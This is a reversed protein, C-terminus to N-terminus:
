SLQSARLVKVSSAQALLVDFMSVSSNRHNYRFSYEDIYAQLYKKSVHRYVGYIGRKLNSWMSEVNQVHVDGETLYTVHHKVTQHKYGIEGLKAYGPHQDTIVRAKPSVYNNIQTVMTLRGTDSIHKLYAKGNRAIMGLVVQKEKSNGHWVYRKNKGKGGIFAEDIEVTGTLLEESEESMLTRIQKFMRHATKYCVGLERELQKASIGSRTKIILFMAYYWLQLSVTTKEFITGALPFIQTRCFECSYATRDKIKYYKTTRQCKTCFVGNPHQSNLLADLCAKDNPYKKLFTKLNIDKM